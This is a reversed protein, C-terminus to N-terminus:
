LRLFQPVPADHRGGLSGGDRRPEREWCKWGEDRQGKKVPDGFAKQGLGVIIHHRIGTKFHALLAKGIFVQILLHSRTVQSFIAM